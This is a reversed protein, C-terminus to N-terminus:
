VYHVFVHVHVLVFVHVYFCMHLYLCTYMHLVFVTVYLYTIICMCVLDRVCVPHTRKTSNRTSYSFDFELRTLKVRIRIKLEFKVELKQSWSSTKLEVCYAGSSWFSSWESYREFAEAILLCVAMHWHIYLMILMYMSIM